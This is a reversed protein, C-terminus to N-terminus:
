SILFVTMTKPGHAGLVLSQEIDATKSPGAIFTGFEYAVAGIRDYAQHMTEVINVEEVVVALHQCLFPLVRDGMLEETIWVAGNEAVAFHAKIIMLDVSEFEHPISNANPREAQIGPIMSVIRAHSSYHQSIYEQIGAQTKLDIVTGGINRLTDKFKFVADENLSFSPLEPLPTRSSMKQSLAQLIKSRSNM